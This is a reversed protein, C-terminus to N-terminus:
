EGYTSTLGGASHGGGAGEDDNRRDRRHRPPVRSGHELFVLVRRGCRDLSEVARRDPRHEGSAQEPQAVDEPGGLVSLGRDHLVPRAPLREFVGVNQAEIRVVWFIRDHEYARVELSGRASTWGRAPKPRSTRATCWRASTADSVRTPARRGNTRSPRRSTR